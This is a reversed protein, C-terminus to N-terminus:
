MNRESGELPVCTQRSVRTVLNLESEITKPRLFCSTM